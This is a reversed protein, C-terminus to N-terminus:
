ALHVPPHELVSRSVPSHRSRDSSHALPLHNNEVGERKVALEPHHQDLLGRTVSV